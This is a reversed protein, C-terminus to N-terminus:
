EIEVSCSKWYIGMQGRQNMSGQPLKNKPVHSILTNTSKVFRTLANFKNESFTLIAWDWSSYYSLMWTFEEDLKNQAVREDLLAYAGSIIKRDLEHLGTFCSPEILSIWNLFVLRKLSEIKIQEDATSSCLEFYQNHIIRYRNFIDNETLQVFKEEMTGELAVVINYLEYENASANDLTLKM